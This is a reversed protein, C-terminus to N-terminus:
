GLNIQRDVKLIKALGLLIVAGITASIVAGIITGTAIPLLFGGLIAGLIGIIINGVPSFGRGEMIQGAAWGAVAGIVLM